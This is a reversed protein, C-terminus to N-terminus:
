SLAFHYRQQPLSIKCAASVCVTFKYIQLIHYQFLGCDSPLKVVNNDIPSAERVPLMPSLFLKTEVRTSTTRMRMPSIPSDAKYAPRDLVRPTSM